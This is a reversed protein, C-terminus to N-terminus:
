KFVLCLLCPPLNAYLTGLHGESKLFNLNAPSIKYTQQPFRTLKTLFFNPCLSNNGHDVLLREKPRTLTIFFTSFCDGTCPTESFFDNERDM